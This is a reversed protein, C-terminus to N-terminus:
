KGDNEERRGTERLALILALLDVWHGKLYAPRNRAAGFRTAFEAVFIVTLTTEIALLGQEDSRSPDDLAFGIAVYVIALFGMGLEWAIEHRAVFANIRDRM